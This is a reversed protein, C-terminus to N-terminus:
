NLTIEVSATKCSDQLGNCAELIMYAVLPLAPISATLDEEDNISSLVGCSMMNDSTFRCEIEGYQDCEFESLSGCNLGYINIDEDDLVDDQSFYIDIVYPDSSKVDWTITKEGEGTGPNLDAANSDEIKFSNIKTTTSNQKSSSSGGCATLLAILISAVIFKEM